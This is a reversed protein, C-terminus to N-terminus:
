PAGQGQNNKSLPSNKKSSSVGKLADHEKKLESRNVRFNRSPFCCYLLKVWSVWEKKQMPYQTDFGLPRIGPLGDRVSTTDQTRASHHSPGHGPEAIAHHM